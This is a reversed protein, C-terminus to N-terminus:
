PKQPMGQPAVPVDWAATWLPFLLCVEPVLAPRHNLFSLALNPTTGQPHPPGHAPSLPQFACAQSPDGPQPSLFIHLPLNASTLASHPSSFAGQPVATEWTPPRVKSDLASPFKQHGPLAKVATGPSLHSKVRLGPTEVLHGWGSDLFQLRSSWPQTSPTEQSWLHIEHHNSPPYSM